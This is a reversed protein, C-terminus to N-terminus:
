SSSNNNNNNNQELKSYKESNNKSLFNFMECWWTAPIICASLDAKLMIEEEDESWEDEDVDDVKGVGENPARGFAGGSPPPAVRPGM